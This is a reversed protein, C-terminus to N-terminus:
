SLVLAILRVVVLTLGAMVLVGGILFTLGILAPGNTRHKM